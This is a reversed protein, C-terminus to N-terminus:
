RLELFTARKSQELVKCIMEPNNNGGLVELNSQPPRQNTGLHPFCHLESAKCDLQLPILEIPLNFHEWCYRTFVTSAGVGTLKPCRRGQNASSLNTRQYLMAEDFDKENTQSSSVVIDIHIFLYLGGLYIQLSSPIM